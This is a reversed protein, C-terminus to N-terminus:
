IKIYKVCLSPVDTTASPNIFDNFLLDIIALLRINNHSASDVCSEICPNKPNKNEISSCRHYEPTNKISTYSSKDNQQQM